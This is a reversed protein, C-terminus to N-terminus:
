GRESDEQNEPGLLKIPSPKIENGVEQNPIGARVEPGFLKM